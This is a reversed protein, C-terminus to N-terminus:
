LIVQVVVMVVDGGNSVAKFTCATVLRMVEMMSEFDDSADFNYKRCCGSKYIADGNVLAM